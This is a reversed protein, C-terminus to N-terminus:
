YSIADSPRRTAPLDRRCELDQDLIGKVLAIASVLYSRIQGTAGAVWKGADGNRPKRLGFMKRMLLGLNYGTCKIQHVKSM